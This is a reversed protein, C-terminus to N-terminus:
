FFFRGHKTYSKSCCPCTVMGGNPKFLRGCNECNKQKYNFVVIPRETTTTPEEDHKVPCPTSTTPFTHTTDQEEYHATTTSEKHEKPTTTPEEYQKEPCHTTEVDYKPPHPKTPRKKFYKKPCHTTEENPTQEHHPRVKGCNGDSLALVAADRLIEEEYYANGLEDLLGRYALFVETCEDCGSSRLNHLKAYTEPALYRADAHEFDRTYLRELDFGTNSRYVGSRLYFCRLLCRTEPADRLSGESYSHLLPEPVQLLNMCDYAMRVHRTHDGPLFQPCPVLNGYHQLYCMFSEYAASCCDSPDGTALRLELCKATRREYDADAWDPQFFNAMLAPQVGTTDNWWRLSLGVCRVLCQTEPDSPFRHSTYDAYRSAPIQLYEMCEQMAQAMSKELYLHPVDLLGACSGVAGLALVTLLMIASCSM